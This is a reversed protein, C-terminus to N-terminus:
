QRMIGKRPHIVSQARVQNVESRAIAQVTSYALLRLSDRRQFVQWLSEPESYGSLSLRVPRPAPPGLRMRLRLTFMEDGRSPYRFCVRVPAHSHRCMTVGRTRRRGKSQTQKTLSEPRPRQKHLHEPTHTCRPICICICACAGEARNKGEKKKMHRALPSAGDHMMWTIKRRKRQRKSPTCTRATVDRPPPGVFGPGGRKQM